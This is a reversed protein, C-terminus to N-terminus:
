IGLGPILYYQPGVHSSAYLLNRGERPILHEVNRDYTEAYSGMALISDKFMRKLDPGYLNVEPMDHFNFSTVNYEEAYFTGAVSWYVFTSWDRDDQRTALCFTDEEQSYGYFYPQSFFYGQGTSPEKVDTQLTWVAGALVDIEDNALLGYGTIPDQGDIEVFEVLESEGGFLAAGLRYCYDVDMGVYDDSGNVDIRAVFGPRDMRIGCRLRRSELIGQLTNGLAKSMNRENAINGFPHSVILGSNGDNVNNPTSRPLWDKLNQDYIEGYNGHAGVAHRMMDKYEEGFLDTQPMLHATEKTINNHEAALLAQLVVNTFDTFEPDKVSSVISIPQLSYYHQGWVFDIPDFLSTNKGLNEEM